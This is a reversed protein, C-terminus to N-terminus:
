KQRDTQRDRERERERERVHVALDEGVGVNVVTYNHGCVLNGGFDVFYHM